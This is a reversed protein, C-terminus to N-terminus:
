GAVLLRVAFVVIVATVIRRVWTQGKLVQLHVGVLGGLLNGAALALGILWEVKGDMAFLALSIPTFALVLTVKVANGRVLDLGGASTAALIVFGVGAQVFGGYVGILFFLTALVARRPGSPPAASGGGGAQGPRWLTWVTIGVLLIALIRQFAVDGVQLALWTGAVAGLVASPAALRIWPGSVLGRRHFSWSAGLNQILIAVRNTGNAVTAPLGLFIMLPLTLMSGGGAVVNLAGALLGAFFLVLAQLLPQDVTADTM